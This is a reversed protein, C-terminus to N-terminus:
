ATSRYALWLLLTALVLFMARVVRVLLDRNREHFDAMRRLHLKRLVAIRLQMM